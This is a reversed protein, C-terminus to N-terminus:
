LKRVSGRNQRIAPRLEASIKRVMQIVVDISNLMSETKRLLGERDASESKKRARPSPTTNQRIVKRAMWSLDLKLGTLSQGLNDHIERAVTAREEERVSQVHESILRLRANAERFGRHTMEFPALSEVFFDTAKEATRVLDRGKGVVTLVENLSEKHIAAIDLLTLTDGLATRGLEYARQL